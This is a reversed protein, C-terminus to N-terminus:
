EAAVKPGGVDNLKHSVIPSVCTYTVIVWKFRLLPWITGDKRREQGGDPRNEPTSFKIIIMGKYDMVISPVYTAKM